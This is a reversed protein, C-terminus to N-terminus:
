ELCLIPRTQEVPADGAAGAAGTLASHRICPHQEAHRSLRKNDPTGHPPSPQGADLLQRGVLSDRILNSFVDTLAIRFSVLSAFALFPSLGLISLLAFVFPLAIVFGVCVVASYFYFLHLHIFPAASQDTGLRSHLAWLRAILLGDLISTLLDSATYMALTGVYVPSGPSVPGGPFTAYMVFGFVVTQVGYVLWAVVRVGPADPWLAATRCYIFWVFLSRGVFDFLSGLAYSIYPMAAVSPFHASFWILLTAAFWCVLALLPM